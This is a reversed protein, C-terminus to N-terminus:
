GPRVRLAVRCGNMNTAPLRVREMRTGTSLCSSYSLLGPGHLAFHDSLAVFIGVSAEDVRDDCTMLTLRPLRRHCRLPAPAM